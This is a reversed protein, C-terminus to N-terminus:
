GKLGKGFKKEGCNPCITWSDYTSDKGYYVGGGSCAFCYIIKCKGCIIESYKHVYNKCLEFQKKAQETPM